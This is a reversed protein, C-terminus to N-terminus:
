IVFDGTLLRVILTPLYDRLCPPPASSPGEDSLFSFSPFSDRLCIVSHQLLTDCHMLWM